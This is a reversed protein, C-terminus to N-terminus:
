FTTVTEPILCALNCSIENLCKSYEIFYQKLFLQQAPVIIISLKYVVNNSFSFMQKLHRKHILYM